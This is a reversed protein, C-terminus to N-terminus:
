IDLIISRYALMSGDENRKTDMVWNAGSGGGGGGGGFGGFGGFGGGFGGSFVSDRALPTDQPRGIYEPHNVHIENNLEDTFAFQTALLEQGNEVFLAHLHNSRGAYWGPFCSKFYVEGQANTIQAGRHWRSQMARQNNNACFPGNWDPSSKAAGSNDASYFGECNTHWIDVIIGSLPQCNRNLVQFAFIVPVGKEGDSIDERFHDVSFYCPGLM